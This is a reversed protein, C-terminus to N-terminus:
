VHAGGSKGAALPRAFKALLRMSAFSGVAGYDVQDGM